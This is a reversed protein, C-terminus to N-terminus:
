KPRGVKLLTEKKVKGNSKKEITECYNTTGSFETHPLADKKIWKYLARPTLDIWQAVQYVGGADEICFKLNM